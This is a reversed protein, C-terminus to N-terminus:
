HSSTVIYRMENKNSGSSDSFHSKCIKLASIVEVLKLSQDSSFVKWIFM